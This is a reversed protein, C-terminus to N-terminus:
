IMQTFIIDYKRLADYDDETLVYSNATIVADPNFNGSRYAVATVDASTGVYTDDALIACPVNGGELEYSVVVNNTGAAPAASLTVVGTYPNYDSVVADSTGVKVGTIKAPKATVTFTTATGDGNFKQTGTNAKGGYVQYKGDADRYLLTGRKITAATGLQKLVIGTTEAAPSLRAILNDASVEGVKSVLEDRM